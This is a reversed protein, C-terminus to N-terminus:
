PYKNFCFNSSINLYKEFVMIRLILATLQNFYINFNIIHDTSKNFNIVILPM